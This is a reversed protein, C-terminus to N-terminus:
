IPIQQQSDLCDITSPYPNAVLNWGNNNNTVGKSVDNFEPTGTVSVVTAGSSTYLLALLMQCM